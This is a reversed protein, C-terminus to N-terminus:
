ELSLNSDAYLNTTGFWQVDQTLEGVFISDDSDVCPVLNNMIENGAQDTEIIWVTPQFHWYKGYSKLAAELCAEKDGDNPLYYTVIYNAM